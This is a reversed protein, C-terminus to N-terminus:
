IEFYIENIEKFFLSIQDYNNDINIDSNEEEFKENKKDM